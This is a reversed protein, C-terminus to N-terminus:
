DAAKGSPLGYRERNKFVAARYKEIAEAVTAATTTLRYIADDDLDWSNEGKGAFQPPTAVTVEARRVRRVRPWRPRKWSSESLEVTAAYDGEPMPIAVAETHLVQNHYVHQGLFTDLPRWCGRRWKSDTSLWRGDDMWFLWWMGGDFFRLSLERDEHFSYGKHAPTLWRALRRLWRADASLWLDFLVLGLHMHLPEDGEPTVQLEIGPHRGRILLSWGISGINVEEPMCYLTWSGRQYWLDRTRDERKLNQRWRHIRYNM